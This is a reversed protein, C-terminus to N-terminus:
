QQRARDVRHGGPQHEDGELRDAPPRDRRHAFGRHALQPRRRGGARGRGGSRPDPLHDLPRHGLGAARRRRGHRGAARVDAAQGTRVRGRRRDVARTILEVQLDKLDDLAKMYALQADRMKEALLTEAEDKKGARVLEMFTQQLPVYVTRATTLAALRKKGEDSAIAAEMTELLKGIRARAETATDLATKVKAEDNWILANRLERAILNLDDTIAASQQVKPVRDSGILALSENAHSLRTVGIIGVLLALAILAGFALGLRSGIRINNFTNVVQHEQQHPHWGTLFSL